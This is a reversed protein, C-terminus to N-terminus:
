ATSWLNQEYRRTSAHRWAFYARPGNSARVGFSGCPRRWYADGLTYALGAQGAPQGQSTARRSCPGGRTAARRTMIRSECRPKGALVM